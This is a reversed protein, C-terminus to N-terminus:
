RPYLRFISSTVEALWAEPFAIAQEILRGEKM